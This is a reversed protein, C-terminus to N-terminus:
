NSVQDPSRGRGSTTPMPPAVTPIPKRKISHQSGSRDTAHSGSRKTIYPPRPESPPPTESPRVDAEPPSDGAVMAQSADQNATMGSDTPPQNVGRPAQDRNQSGSRWAAVAAIGATGNTGAKNADVMQELTANSLRSKNRRMDPRQDPQRQPRDTAQHHFSPPAAVPGPPTQQRMDRGVEEAHSRTRQIALDSDSSNRSDILDTNSLQRPKLNRHVPPAPVPDMEEPSERDMSLRSPKYPNNQRRGKSPSSLAVSESVSRNHYMPTNLAGPPGTVAKKPTAFVADTSMNHQHGQRSSPTSRVSASDDYRLGNRSGMSNRHGRTSEVNSPRTQVANAMRRSTMEKM